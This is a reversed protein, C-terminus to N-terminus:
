LTIEYAIDSTLRFRTASRPSQCVRDDHSTSKEYGEDKGGAEGRARVGSSHTVRCARGEPGGLGSSCKATDVELCALFDPDREDPPPSDDPFCSRGSTTGEDHLKRRRVHAATGSERDGCDTVPAAARGVLARAALARM